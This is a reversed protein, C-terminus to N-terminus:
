KGTNDKRTIVNGKEDRDLNGIVDCENFRRSDANPPVEILGQNSAFNQLAQSKVMMKSLDSENDAIQEGSASEPENLRDVVSNIRQAKSECDAQQENQLKKRYNYNKQMEKLREIKGEDFASAKEKKWAELSDGNM